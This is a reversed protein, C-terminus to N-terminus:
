CNGLGACLMSDQGLEDPWVEKVPASTQLSQLAYGGIALVAWVAMCGKLNM